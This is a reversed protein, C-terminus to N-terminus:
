MSTACLPSTERERERERERSSVHKLIFFYFWSFGQRGSHESLTSSCIYRYSMRVDWGYCNIRNAKKHIKQKKTSVYSVSCSRLREYELSVMNTPFRYGFNDMM